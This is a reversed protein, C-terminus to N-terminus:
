GGGPMLWALVPAAQFMAPIAGVPRSNSAVLVATFGSLMAGAMAIQAPSLPRRNGRTASDWAPPVEPEASVEAVEEPRFALTCTWDEMRAQLRAAQEPKPSADSRWWIDEGTVRRIEVSDRHVTARALLADVILAIGAAGAAVHMAGLLTAGLSDFNDTQTFLKYFAALCYGACALLTLGILFLGARVAHAPRYVRPYAPQIAVSV